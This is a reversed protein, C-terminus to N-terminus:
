ISIGGGVRQEAKQTQSITEENAVAQHCRQSIAAMIEGARQEPCQEWVIRQAKAALNSAMFELTLKADDKFADILARANNGEWLVLANGNAKAFPSNEDFREIVAFENGQQCLLIEGHRLNLLAFRIDWEGTEPMTIEFDGSYPFQGEYRLQQNFERISDLQNAIASAATRYGDIENESFREDCGSIYYSTRREGHFKLSSVHREIGLRSDPLQPARDEIPQTNIPGTALRELESSPILMEGLYGREAKIDGAQIRSLLSFEDLGLATASREIPLAFQESRESTVEM